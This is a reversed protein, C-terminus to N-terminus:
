LGINVAWFAPTFLNSKKPLRRPVLRIDQAVAAAEEQALHGVPLRTLHIIM